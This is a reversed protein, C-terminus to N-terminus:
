SNAVLGWRMHTGIAAICAGSGPAETSTVLANPWPAVKESTAQSSIVCGVREGSHLLQYKCNRIDDTASSSGHEEGNMAKVPTAGMCLKPICFRAEPPM